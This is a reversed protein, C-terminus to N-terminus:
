AIAFDTYKRADPPQFGLVIDENPVGAELLDGVVDLNTWDEEVWIKDNKIRLYVTIGRIRHNNEWGSRMWLYHDRKEDFVVMSEVDTSKSSKESLSQYSTLLRQILERYFTLKDM